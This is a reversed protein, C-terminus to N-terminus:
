SGGGGVKPAQSSTSFNKQPKGLVSQEVGTLCKVVTEINDFTFIFFFDNEIANWMNEYTQIM